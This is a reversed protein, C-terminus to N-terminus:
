KPCKGALSKKILLSNENKPDSALIKECYLISKKADECNKNMNYQKYYFYRMYEYSMNVFSKYKVSDALSLTLLNEYDSLALGKESNYDISARSMARYYVANIFDAKKNLVETLASDAKNWQKLANITDKKEMYQGGNSYYAKGLDYYDTLTACNNTAKKLYSEIVDDYKKLKNSTKAIKTLIECNSPELQYGLKYKEVALSDNGLKALIDGYYTYDSAIIKGDNKKVNTFFTEISKLADSCKDTEYYSYAALRCLLNYTPDIAMVENIIQLAESHKKAMFLFSAYRVKAYTNKESLELFKQYDKIGNDWKGALGYLEARERYAPAFTADIGIAENYYLLADTYNKGRVWLQGIKVKAICSKSDLENAKNYAVIASSGDNFELYIDGKIIYVEPVTNSREVAKDILAILETLSKNPLKLSAEAMKAYTLAQNTLPIDSKKFNKIPLLSIAKDFNTKAEAYKGQLINVRGVGVYNLPNMPDKEIGKNFNQLAPVIVEKLSVTMSDVFFKKLWYEGYYYYNDGKNPENTILTQFTKGATEFQESLTLKLATQLDQASLPLSLILSIGVILGKIRFKHLM